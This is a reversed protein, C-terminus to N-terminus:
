FFLKQPWTHTSLNVFRIRECFHSVNYDAQIDLTKSLTDFFPRDRAVQDRAVDLFPEIVTESTVLDEM